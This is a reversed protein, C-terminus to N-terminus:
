ERNSTSEVAIQRTNGQVKATKWIEDFHVVCDKLLGHAAKELEFAPVETSRKPPLSLTLWGWSDDCLIMPNRMQTNFYGLSIEGLERAVEKTKAAECLYEHLLGEVQGIEQPMEIARTGGEMNGVEAVFESDPKAILVWIAARNERLAKVIESKYERFFILGSTAIIRINQAEAIHRRMSEGSRGDPHIDMVGKKKCIDVLHPVELVRRSLRQGIAFFILCSVILIGLLSITQPFGEPLIQRFVLFSAAMIVLVFIVILTTRIRGQPIMSISAITGLVGFAGFISALLIPFYEKM